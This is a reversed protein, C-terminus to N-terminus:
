TRFILVRHSSRWWRKQAEEREHRASIVDQLQRGVTRDVDALGRRLRAPTILPLINALRDLEKEYTEQADRLSDRLGPVDISNVEARLCALDLRMILAEMKAHQLRRVSRVLKDM